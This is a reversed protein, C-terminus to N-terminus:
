HNDYNIEKPLKRKFMMYGTMSVLALSSILLWAITPTNGLHDLIIGGYLPGFSWGSAVFFGYIGMYRGIRGPPALKSTLFLSAPSMIMEGITVVVIAMVFYNFGSFVGVLGYGIAYILGGIALKSTLAMKGGLRTIPIQLTVVMLGNISYLYGLETQSIGVIDVAYVSFTAILQAVVLYLIFILSCHIALNSDDKIAILDKLTFKEQITEIKPSHLMLWFILCSLFTIIASAIFLDGYSNTALFGGLAPGVAWGFNGASRTIAYGDLRKDKPLIDSVMANAVPQFIAGFISAIILSFAIPIIGWDNYISAALFIFIISRFFQSWILLQRREMRDSVEGGLLQFASRIIALSGFFIGIESLSMDLNTHFYIAIFPISISFGIASVFWGFSLIWLNKDFQRIFNLIASIM